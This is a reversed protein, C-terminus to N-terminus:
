AATPVNGGTASLGESYQQSRSNYETSSAAVGAINSTIESSSSSAENLNRSMEDTTANPEEVATAITNSIDNIHHIVGSISAIANVAAM